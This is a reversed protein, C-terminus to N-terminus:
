SAVTGEETLGHRVAFTYDGVNFYLLATDIEREIMMCEEWSHKNGCYTIDEFDVGMKIAELRGKIRAEFLMLDLLGTKRLKSCM